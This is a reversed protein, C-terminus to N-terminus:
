SGPQESVTIRYAGLRNLSTARLEVDGERAFDLVLRSDTRHSLRRLTMSNEADDNSAILRTGIPTAGWAQLSADLVREGAQGEPTNDEFLEELTEDSVAPEPAAAGAAAASVAEMAVVFRQGQRGHLVYADYYRGDEALESNETLTGPMPAGASLPTPTRVAYPRLNLKLDFAGKGDLTRAALLYRGPRDIRRVIRANLGDGGDDNEALKEEDRLLELAPDAGADGNFTEAVLRDDVDAQFSFLCRAGCGSAAVRVPAAANPTIPVPATKPASAATTASTASAPLVALDYTRGPRSPEGSADDSESVGILYRGARDARHVLQAVSGGGGDDDEALVVGRATYLKLLPDLDGGRATIRVTEGARLTIPHRTEPGDLRGEVARGVQVPPGQGLRQAAAGASLAAVGIVLGCVGTRM